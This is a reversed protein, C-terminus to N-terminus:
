TRWYGMFVLFAGPVAIAPAPHWQWLGFGVMTLGGYVHIDTLNLHRLLRLVRSRM